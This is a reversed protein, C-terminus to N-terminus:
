VIVRSVSQEICSEPMLGCAPGPFLDSLYVCGDKEQIVGDKTKYSAPQGAGRESLVLKIYTHTKRRWSDNRNEHLYIAIEWAASLRLTPHVESKLQCSVGYLAVM